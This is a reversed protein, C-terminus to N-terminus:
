TSLMQKIWAVKEVYENHARDWKDVMEVPVTYIKKLESIEITAFDHIYETHNLEDNAMEGKSKEETKNLM